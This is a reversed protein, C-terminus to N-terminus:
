RIEKNLIEVEFISSYIRILLVYCYDLTSKNTYMNCRRNHYLFIKNEVDTKHM